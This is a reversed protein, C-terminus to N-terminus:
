AEAAIGAITALGLRALVDPLPHAAPCSRDPDDPRSGVPPGVRAAFRNPAPLAASIVAAKHRSRVV